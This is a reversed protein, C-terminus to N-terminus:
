KVGMKVNPGKFVELINEYYKKEPSYMKVAPYCIFLAITFLLVIEIVDNELVKQVVMSSPITSVARLIMATWLFSIKKKRVGYFIIVSLALHLIFFALRELLCTTILGYSVANIQNVKEIINAEIMNPYKAIMGELGIASFENAFMITSYAPVAVFTWAELAGHGIGYFLPTTDDELGRMFVRHAVFRGTEDTLGVVVAQYIIYLVPNNDIPDSVGLIITVFGIIGLIVVSFLVYVTGGIFFPIMSAKSKVKLFILAAIPFVIVMILQLYLATLASSSIEM